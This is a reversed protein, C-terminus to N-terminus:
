STRQAMWTPCPSTRSQLASRAVYHTVPFTPLAEAAAPHNPVRRRAKHIMKKTLHAIAATHGHICAKVYAKQFHRTSGRTPANMATPLPATPPTPERDVRRPEEEVKIEPEPKIDPAARRKARRPEQSAQMETRPQLPAPRQHRRTEERVRARRAQREARLVPEQAKALEKRWQKREKAGSPWPKRSTETTTRAHEQRSTQSRADDRRPPPQPSKPPSCADPPAFPPLPPEPPPSAAAPIVPTPAADPLGPPPSSAAFVDQAASNEDRRHCTKSWKIAMINLKRCARMAAYEDPKPVTKRLPPFDGMDEFNPM